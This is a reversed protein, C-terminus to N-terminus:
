RWSLKSYMVQLHVCVLEFILVGCLNLKNEVVVTFICVVL